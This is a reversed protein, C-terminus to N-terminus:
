DNSVYIDPWGDSNFDSIALGLGFGEEKIGAQLTVDTFRGGDNRFLKDNNPSSGDNIKERYTTPKNNIKVNTLIYLDLDGDRDYDLFATMVSYGGYDIRYKAAQEDFVPTGSEDLGKNIFLMNKRSISDKKM